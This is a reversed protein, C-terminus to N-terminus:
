AKRLHFDIAERIHVDWYDWTHAVPFEEYEHPVKMKVLSQHLSRNDEMLFDDVGCDIRLRPLKGKKKALKALKLLDHSSGAPDTGVMLVREPLQQPHTGFLMAGSHSNASSFRDPYGLSIRLAGYGGMSLGGIFRAHREAIAPFTKEIFAPLEVGIHEAWKLGNEHNTYFGRGGDPMVVILPKSSVYMEIRTRRLWISQDDSLGHLLYFTSFPGPLGDPLLVWTTTQKSLVSSFWQLQCFAM